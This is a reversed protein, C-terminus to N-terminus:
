EKFVKSNENLTGKRFGPLRGRDGVGLFIFFLIRNRNNFQLKIYICVYVCV